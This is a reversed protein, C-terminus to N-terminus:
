FLRAADPFTHAMHSRSPLAEGVRDKLGDHFNEATGVSAKFTAYKGGQAANTAREREKMADRLERAKTHLMSKIFELAEACIVDIQDDTLNAVADLPHNCHHDDPPDPIADALPRWWEIQKFWAEIPKLRLAANVFEDYDIHDDRNADYTLCIEEITEGHSPGVQLENLAQALSTKAMKRNPDEVVSQENEEGADSPTGLFRNYM